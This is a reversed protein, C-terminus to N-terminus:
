RALIPSRTHGRGNSNDGGFPTITDGLAIEEEESPIDLVAVRPSHPVYDRDRDRADHMRSPLPPHAPPSNQMDILDAYALQMEPGPVPIPQPSIPPSNFDLDIPPLNDTDNTDYPLPITKSLPSPSLSPTYPQPTSSQPQSQRANSKNNKRPPM